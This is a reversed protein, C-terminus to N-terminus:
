AVKLLAYAGVIVGVVAWLGLFVLASRVGGEGGVRVGESRLGLVKAIERGGQDAYVGGAVLAMFPWWSHDLLMLLGAVPLTWNVLLDWRATNRELRWYLPDTETKKEQLGWQQALKFNLASVGQALLGLAGLVVCVIGIATQM